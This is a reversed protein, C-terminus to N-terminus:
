SAQGTHGVATSIRHLYASVMAILHEQLLPAKRRSAKAALLLQVPGVLAGLVLSSVEESDPVRRDSATALMSRVARRARQSLRTVIAAGGIEAAVAYLSASTEPDKLKATLFADVLAHAMADTTAAKSSSCALEISEVVHTLHRELVAALLSQKNPFYQYLSGVSVGAREAVRTTTFRELGGESLVRICAELISGVTHM